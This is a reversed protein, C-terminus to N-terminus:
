ARQEIPTSVSLGLLCNEWPQFMPTIVLTLSALCPFYTHDHKELAKQAMSFTQVIHQLDSIHFWSSNQSPLSVALLIVGINSYSHKEQPGSACIRDPSVCNRSVFTDWKPIKPANSAITIEVPCM